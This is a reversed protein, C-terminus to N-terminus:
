YPPPRHSLWRAPHNAVNYSAARVHGCNPVKVAGVPTQWGASSTVAYYEQTDWFTCDDTPDVAMMSYDGWRNFSSTQSGSGAVLTAEGQPLTGIPDGALRGTYRISPSVDSSSVSYGLAIAGAQDMAMSGM